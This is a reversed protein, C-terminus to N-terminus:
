LWMHKIMDSGKEAIMITPANTNGSVIKPMISSDIVRLRKVCYVRLEHDVVSTPDDHPGMKCTGVPHYITATYSVIVCAWYDRTGWEYEECYPLPIKIIAGIHSLVENKLIRVGEIAGEILRDLDPEKSFFNPYILPAGFIPDSTNLLVEGRSNPNLMVPRLMVGNYYSSPSPVESTPETYFDEINTVDFSFQIDPVDHNHQYPTQYFASVQLTGSGALPGKHNHFFKHLDHVQTKEDALTASKNTLGFVLGSFTAHDHLNKGVPLDCIVPIDLSQLEERPGVGSVKLIQPSNISGASLIIEKQAVAYEVEGNENMFEVGFANKTKPDILIRTVHAQTRVKLNRRKRRVPRIFASNTSARLGHKSTMQLRVAGLQEEANADILPYGSHFLADLMIPVNHDKYPFWEVTQPGGRGHYYKNKAIEPDENDESKKFYHLVNEYNWGHNGMEEWEDYDRRNGRIYQMYNTTSSGGMVKGRYWRCRGDPFARCMHPQPQTSYGWDINSNLIYPNLGPVDAVAPEEIGAELLLVKWKKVESLRRAVVCGASGAGIVIFDYQPIDSHKGIGPLDWRGFAFHKAWDNSDDFEPDHTWQPGIFGNYSNYNSDIQFSFLSIILQLYM